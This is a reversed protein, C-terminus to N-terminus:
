LEVAEWEPSLQSSRDEEESPLSSASDCFEFAMFALVAAGALAWSLPLGTHEFRWLLETNGTVILALCALTLAVGIWYLAATFSRRAVPVM